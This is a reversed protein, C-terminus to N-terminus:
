LLLLAKFAFGLGIFFSLGSGVGCIGQIAWLALAWGAAAGLNTATLANAVVAEDGQPSIVYKCFRHLVRAAHLAAFLAVGAGFAIAASKLLPLITQYAPAAAFTHLAAITALMATSNATGAVRLADSYATKEWETIPRM